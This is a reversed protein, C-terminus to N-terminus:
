SLAKELVTLPDTGKFVLSPNSHIQLITKDKNFSLVMHRGYKENLQSFISEREIVVSSHNSPAKSSVKVVKTPPTAQIKKRPYIPKGLSARRAANSCDKCTSRRGSARSRDRCFAAIPKSTQCQLCTKNFFM